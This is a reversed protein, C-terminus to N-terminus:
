SANGMIVQTLATATGTTGNNCSWTLNATFPYTGPDLELGFDVLEQEDTGRPLAGSPVPGYNATGGLVWTNSDNFIGLNQNTTISGGLGCGSPVGSQLIRLCYLRENAGRFPLVYPPNIVDSPVPAGNHTGGCSTRVEFRVVVAAPAPTPSPTPNVVVNGSGTPGNSGCGVTVSVAALVLMLSLKLLTRM